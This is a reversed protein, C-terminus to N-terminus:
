LLGIVENVQYRILADNSLFSPAVYITPRVGRRNACPHSTYRAARAYNRFNVIQLCLGRDRLKFVEKCGKAPLKAKVFCLASANSGRQLIVIANCCIFGRLCKVVINCAHTTFRHLVLSRRSTSEQSDNGDYDNTRYPRKLVFSLHGCHRRKVHSFPVGQHRRVYGLFVQRLLLCGRQGSTKSVRLLRNTSPVWLRDPELKFSQYDVGRM